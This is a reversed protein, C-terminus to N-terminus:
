GDVAEGHLDLFLTTKDVSTMKAKGIVMKTWVIHVCWSTM